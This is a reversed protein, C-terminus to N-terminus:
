FSALLFPSLFDKGAKKEKETHGLGEEERGFTVWWGVLLVGTCWYSGSKARVLVVKVFRDCVKRLGSVEFAFPSQASFSPPKM